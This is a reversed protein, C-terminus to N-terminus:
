CIYCSMLALDRLDGDTMCNEGRRRQTQNNGTIKGWLRNLSYRFRGGRTSEPLVNEEAPSDPRAEEEDVETDETDSLNGEPVGAAVLRELICEDVRLARRVKGGSISTIHRCLPCVISKEQGSYMRTSESKFVSPRSLTVLCSECFSHKCQLERPCRLGTNFIQYCIGCELESCMNNPRCKNRVWLSSTVCPVQM